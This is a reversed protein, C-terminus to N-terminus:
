FVRCLTQLEVNPVERRLQKGWTIGFQLIGGMAFDAIALNGM